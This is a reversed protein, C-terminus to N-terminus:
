INHLLPLKLINARLVDRIEIDSPDQVLDQHM